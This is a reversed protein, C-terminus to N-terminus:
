SEALIREKERDAESMGCWEPLNSFDWRRRGPKNVMPMRLVKMSALVTNWMVDNETPSPPLSFSMKFDERVGGSQIVASSLTHGQSLLTNILTWTARSADELSGDHLPGTAVVTLVYPVPM